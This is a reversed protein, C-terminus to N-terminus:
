RLAGPRLLSYLLWAPVALVLSVAWAGAATRSTLLLLLLVPLFLRFYGSFLLSMDPVKFCILVTRWIPM